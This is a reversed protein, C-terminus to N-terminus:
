APVAVERLHLSIAVIVLSLVIAVGLWTRGKARIGALAASRGALASAIFFVGLAVVFKLGFLMHYSSEAKGKPIGSAFFQYFGTILLFTIAINIFPAWRRRVAEAIEPSGAEDLAPRLAVRQFVLAGVAVMAALIHFGRSLTEIHSAALIPEPM